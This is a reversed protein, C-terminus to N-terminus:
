SEEDVKEMREFCLWETRAAVVEARLAEAFGGGEEALLAPKLGGVGGVGGAEAGYNVVWGADDAGALAVFREPEYDEGGDGYCGEKEAAPM